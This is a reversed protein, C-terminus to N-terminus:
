HLPLLPFKLFFSVGTKRSLTECRMRGEHLEVIQRALYLNLDSTKWDLEVAHFAQFLAQSSVAALAKGRCHAMMTLHTALAGKLPPLVQIVVTGETGDRPNGGRAFLIICEMLIRLLYENGLMLRSPLEGHLVRVGDWKRQAADLAAQCVPKFDLIEFRYERNAIELYDRLRTVGAEAAQLNKRLRALYDAQEPDPVDKIKEGFRFALRLPDLLRTAVQMSLSGGLKRQFSTSARHPVLVALWAAPGGGDLHSLSAHAVEVWGRPPDGVVLRCPGLIGPVLSTILPLGLLIEEPMDFLTTAAPNAELIRGGEDLELVPWALAAGLGGAGQSGKTKRKAALM